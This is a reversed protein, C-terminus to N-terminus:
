RAPLEGTRLVALLKTTLGDLSHEREVSERLRAGIAIREAAPLKCLRELRDRLGAVDEPGTTLLLDAEAGLLPKFAPNCVVTPLGCAMSELAAKDFLGVPSMNVAVTARQHWARVDAPPLDGTFICRETINLRQALAQLDRQYALANDNQAGGILALRAETGAVAAIVTAQHKIPALRGVQVVLLPTRGGEKHAGSPPLSHFETDIGHGTVRLKEMSYPFSSADASVVRWSMASGLRLQASRQRHTYWLLTRIGRATLLPGALGAFLPTMHAFCADYRRTALLRLLHRYFEWLRRPKSYGRERGASYVRANAPLDYVGRQMTLVDISECEAALRRIWNCAFGLVPDSEDTMLNFLLLRM